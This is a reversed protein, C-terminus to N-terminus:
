GAYCLFSICAICLDIRRSKQVDASQRQRVSRYGYLSLHFSFIAVLFLFLNPHLLTMPIASFAVLVMAWFFLSGWVIHTKGGKAAILAVPAVFFATMGALIHLIQTYAYITEM